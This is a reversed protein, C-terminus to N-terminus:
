SIGGSQPILISLTFGISRTIILSHSVNCIYHQHHQHQQHPPCHLQHDPPHQSLVVAVLQYAKAMAEFCQPYIYM